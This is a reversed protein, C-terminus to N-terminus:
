RSLAVDATSPVYNPVWKKIFLDLKDAPIAVDRTHCRDPPDNSECVNVQLTVKNRGALLPEIEARTFYRPEEDSLKKIPPKEKPLLGLLTLGVDLSGDAPVEGKGADARVLRLRADEIPLDHFKLLYGTVTSPNPGTNSLHLHIIKPTASMFVASTQSPRLLRRLPQYVSLAVILLCLAATLIVSLRYWLPPLIPPISVVPQPNEIQEAVVAAFQKRAWRAKVNAYHVESPIGDGTSDDFRALLLYRADRMARSRACSLEHLTYAEKKEKYEKSLFAVCHKSQWEYVEHLVVSLERGKLDGLQARDYFIKKVGKAQLEKVFHAVYKRQESAYSLCVDYKYPKAVVKGAEDAGVAEAM